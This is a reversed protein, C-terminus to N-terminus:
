RGPSWRVRREGALVAWLAFIAVALDGAGLLVGAESRHGALVLPTAVGILVAVVLLSRQALTRHGRRRSRALLVAALPAMVAFADNSLRLHASPILHLQRYGEMIAVAALVILGPSALAPPGGPPGPRTVTVSDTDRTAVPGDIRAAFQPPQVALVRGEYPPGVNATTHPPAAGAAARTTASTERRSMEM